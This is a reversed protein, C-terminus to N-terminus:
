IHSHLVGELPTVGKGSRPCTGMCASGGVGVPGGNNVLLHQSHVVGTFRDPPQSDREYVQM